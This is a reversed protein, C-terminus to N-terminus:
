KANTTWDIGAYSGSVVTGGGINVTFSGGTNTTVVHTESYLVTGVSTINRISLKVSIAQNEIPDGANDRAVAQYPILQSPQSYIKESISCCIIIVIIKLAYNM